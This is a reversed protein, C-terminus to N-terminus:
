AAIEKEEICDWFWCSDATDDATVRLEIRNYPPKASKDDISNEFVRYPKDSISDFVGKIFAYDINEILVWENGKDDIITIFYNPM